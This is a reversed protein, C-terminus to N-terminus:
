TFSNFHYFDHVTTLVMTCSESKGHCGLYENEWSSLINTGSHKCSVEKRLIERYQLFDDQGLHCGFEILLNHGPSDMYPPYLDLRWAQLYMITKSYGSLGSLSQQLWMLIRRERKEIKCGESGLLYQDQPCLGM